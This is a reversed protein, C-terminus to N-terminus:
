GDVTSREQEEKAIRDLTKGKGRRAEEVALHIRQQFAPSRVLREDLLDDEDIPEIRYRVEGNM